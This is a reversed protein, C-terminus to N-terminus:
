AISSIAKRSLQRQTKVAMTVVQFSLHISDYM